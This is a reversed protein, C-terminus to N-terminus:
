ESETSRQGVPLGGAYEIMVEGFQAAILKTDKGGHLLALRLSKLRAVTSSHHVWKERLMLMKELGLLTTATGALIAAQTSYGLAAVVTAAGSSCIAIGMMSTHAVSMILRWKEQFAISSDLEELLNDQESKSM